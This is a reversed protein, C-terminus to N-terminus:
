DAAAARSGVASLSLLALFSLGTLSGSLLLAYLPGGRDLVIGFLV